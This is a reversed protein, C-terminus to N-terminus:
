DIIVVNTNYIAERQQILHIEELQLSSITVVEYPNSVDFETKILAEVDLLWSELQKADMCIQLWTRDIRKVTQVASMDALRTQIDWLKELLQTKYGRTVSMYVTTM